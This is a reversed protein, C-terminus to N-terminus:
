FNNVFYVNIANVLFLNFPTVPTEVLKVATQVATYLKIAIKLCENQSVGEWM